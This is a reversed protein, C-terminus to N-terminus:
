WFRVSQLALWARQCADETECAAVLTLKDGDPFYSCRPPLCKQGHEFTMMIERSRKWVRADYGGIKMASGEGYEPPVEVGYQGFDTTIEM